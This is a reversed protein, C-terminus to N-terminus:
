SNLPSKFILKHMTKQRLPLKPIVDDAEKMMATPINIEKAEAEKVTYERLVYDTQLMHFLRTENSRVLVDDVRLFYRLLVYWYSPMVRIKVSLKSVGHDHLEDEFLTLDHYFIIQERKKLLELDIAEDTTEVVINNTLTGKYNTSFTWDFPRKPKEASPRAEQWAEACSVEIADATSAVCRLADLANFSIAAGNKHELKLINKPFVMDPFHPIKLEKCYICFQCFQDDDRECVIKTSCVSPLICSIDFSIHWPGFEISKSNSTYRGADVAHVEAGLM